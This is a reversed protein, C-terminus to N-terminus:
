KLTGPLVLNLNNHFWQSQAAMSFVEVSGPFVTLAVALLQTHFFLLEYQRCKKMFVKLLPMIRIPM